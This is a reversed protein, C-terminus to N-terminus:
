NNNHEINHSIMSTCNVIRTIMEFQFANGIDDYNVYRCDNRISLTGCIITGITQM